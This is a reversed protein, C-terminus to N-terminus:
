IPNQISSKKLTNQYMMILLIRYSVVPILIVSPSGTKPAYKVFDPKIGDFSTSNMELFSMEM